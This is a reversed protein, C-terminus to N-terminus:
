DTEFMKEILKEADQDGMTKRLRLLFEENGKVGEIPSRMLDWPFLAQEQAHGIVQRLVREHVKPDRIVGKGRSAEKKGAEFQPKVLAIIDGDSELWQSVAPFILRLSIFSVDITVLSVPEELSALYRANTREMVVVRPDKRIRWHIVGHGVDIAYIRAAGYQLLCDTFGGTSAGVDACVKGEAEIQFGSLAAALKEGGRSVFRPERDVAVQADLNVQQSAKHVVQGEVRVQGAMILRQAQTRSEALERAVMLLDIRTKGAM